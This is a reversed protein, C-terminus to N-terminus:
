GGLRQQLMAALEDGTEWVIPRIYDSTVPISDVAERHVTWIVPINLGMACGAALYVEHAHETLDAILLKCEATLRLATDGSKEDAAQGGYRPLYGCQQIRPLVEETWMEKHAGWDAAAVYCPKLRGDGMSEEARRWGSETLRLTSGTREVLENDKLTEIIYVMEQLNPSYTLNFSKTLPQIVVPNMPASSNRRLYRLLRIGKEEVTAPIHPSAAVRELEPLSLRVQEECDTLERIYASAIPYLVRQKTYSLMSLRDYSECDLSYSSAPACYCGVFLDEEGNKKVPVVTDCFLCRKSEM